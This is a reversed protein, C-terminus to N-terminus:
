IEVGGGDADELFDDQVSVARLIARDVEQVCAEWSTGTTFFSGGLVSSTHSMHKVGPNPLDGPPPCPLRRWYEQQPIEHVSSEPLSCAM